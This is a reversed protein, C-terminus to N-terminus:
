ANDSQSIALLRHCVFVAANEHDEVAFQEIVDLSALIKGRFAMSEDSMTVGFDNRM